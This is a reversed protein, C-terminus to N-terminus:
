VSIGNTQTRQRIPQELRLDERGPLILEFTRTKNRAGEYIRMGVVLEYPLKDTVDFRRRIDRALLGRLRSTRTTQRVRNPLHGVGIDGHIGAVVEHRFM